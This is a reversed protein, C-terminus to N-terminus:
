RERKEWADLAKRLEDWVGRSFRSNKEAVHKAATKVKLLLDHEALLADYASYWVLSGHESVEVGPLFVKAGLRTVKGM